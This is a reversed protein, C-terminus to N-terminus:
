DIIVIGIEGAREGVAFVGGDVLGGLGFGAVSAFVGDGSSGALDLAVACGSDGGFGCDCSELSWEDWIRWDAIPLRCNAIPLERM